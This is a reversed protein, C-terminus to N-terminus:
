LRSSFHKSRPVFQIKLYLLRRKMKLPNIDTPDQLKNHVYTHQCDINVNDLQTQTWLQTSNKLTGQGIIM